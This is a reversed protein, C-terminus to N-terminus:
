GGASAQPPAEPGRRRSLAKVVTTEDAGLEALLPGIEPDRVMARLLDYPEIMVRGDELARAAATM